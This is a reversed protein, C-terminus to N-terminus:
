IGLRKEISSACAMGECTCAPVVNSRPPSATRATYMIRLPPTANVQLVFAPTVESSVSPDPAM